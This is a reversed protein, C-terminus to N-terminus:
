PERSAPVANDSADMNFPDDAVPVDAPVASSAAKGGGPGALQVLLSFVGLVLLVVFPIFNFRQGERKRAFVFGAIPALVILGISIVLKGVERTTSEIEALHAANSM